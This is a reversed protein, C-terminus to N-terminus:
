RGAKAELDAFFDEVLVVDQARDSVPRRIMLFRRDDAGVDYQPRNNATAYAGVPFLARASGPAFGAGPTVPLSMLSGRSKFFLERGSRAWRPETGGGQSVTYKVQMDPFSAVYVEVRGSRDSTFALWRSDPSLAAQTNFSSDSYILRLATDGRLRRAHFVGSAQQQDARVVMWEGDRSLEVEWAGVELDAMLRPPGSGDAPSVYIDNTGSESSVANTAAFAITRGDHSWSPRWTGLEGRSIRIRSGDARRVWLQTIAERVSVALSTGDPSLAPYEFAGMWEPAYPVESGERAVWVLTSKALDVTGLTYLATGSTSVAFGMPAVGDAIPVPGSTVAMGGLDFRVAFLGGERGTYLLHGSPSYWVGAANPILLRVSDARMDYVYAASGSACNGPCGTFLLGRSGPLASLSSPDDRRRPDPRRVVSVEGGDGPVSSLGGSGDVFVIRGDDLWAGIVYTENGRSTLEISGGGSVPVKRVKGGHAFYGIWQGDPSFFPGAAGDTGALPVPHVDERRKILLRTDDGASDTFAIVSGDPSIAFRHEVRAAGPILFDPYRSDWLVIRQRGAARQSVPRLWGWLAAGAFVLAVVPWLALRALRALRAPRAPHAAAPRRTTIGTLAASFEPATAFRDAPLKQLACLVASEVHEPVSKRQVVIGRPEETVLRAVIAQVSPGTFPPEGTLMEYTVAALAYIDSRADISREGMAQEPSMYQPTGLSLGTQTMRAGGASQVALAIGFDAVLAHGGQLLINEPKIDRHVVGLGHAYGLADAVERAIQVAEEVPLQRTRVLRTRLTEGTVLPMVYYLLGDAEGSDLLPLIHPHQLRATTRIESLFRESGLAAGLEPHLVKIAVDRDHRLDHALYVTAMGGAGLERETRYREALAASLRGAVDSM